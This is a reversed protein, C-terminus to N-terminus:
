ISTAGEANCPREGFQLAGMRWRLRNALAFDALPRQQAAIDGEAVRCDSLDCAAAVPSPRHALGRLLGLLGPNEARVGAVRGRGFRVREVLGVEGLALGAKGDGEVERGLRAVVAVVDKRAALDALDANGDRVDTVHTRQEVANREVAHIRGHRDVRGGSPQKRQVDGDGVLLAGRARAEGAGDLVVDDLFIERAARVDERGLRRQLKDAVRDRVGVLLHRPPIRRVDARIM